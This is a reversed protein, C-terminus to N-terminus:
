VFRGTAYVRAHTTELYWVARRIPTRLARRLACMKRAEMAMDAADAVAAAAAAAAAAALAVTLQGSSRKPNWGIAVHKSRPVAGSHWRALAAVSHSCVLARPESSDKQDRQWCVQPAHM